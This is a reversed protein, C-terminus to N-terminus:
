TLILAPRTIAASGHDRRELCLNQPLETLLIHIKYEKPLGWFALATTRFAFEHVLPQLNHFIALM